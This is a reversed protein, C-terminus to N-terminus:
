RYEKETKIIQNNEVSIIYQIKNELDEILIEQIVLEEERIIYILKMRDSTYSVAHQLMIVNELM